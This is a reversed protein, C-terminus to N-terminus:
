GRSVRSGQFTVRTKHRDSDHFRNIRHHQRRRTRDPDPTSRDRPELNTRPTTERSALARTRVRASSEASKRVRSYYQM